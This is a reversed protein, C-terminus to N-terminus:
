RRSGPVECGTATDVLATLINGYRPDADWNPFHVHPGRRDPCNCWWPDMVFAEGPEVQVQGWIARAFTGVNRWSM